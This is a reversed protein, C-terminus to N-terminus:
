DEGLLQSYFSDPELFGDDDDQVETAYSAYTPEVNSISSHLASSTLLSPANSSLPIGAIEHQDDQSQLATAEVDSIRGIITALPNSRNSPPALANWPDLSVSTAAAATKNYTEEEPQTSRQADNMIGDLFSMVNFNSGTGFLGEVDDHTEDAGEGVDSESRDLLPPALLPPPPLLETSSSSQVFPNRPSSQEIDDDLRPSILSILPPLPISEHHLQITPSRNAETESLLRPTKVPSLEAFSLQPSLLSPTSEGFQQTPSSPESSNHPETFGPPPLLGPGLGPPPRLMGKTPLPKPTASSDSRPSPHASSVPTSNPMSEESVSRKSFSANEPVKVAAKTKNADLTKQKGAGLGEDAKSVTKGRRSQGPQKVVIESSLNRKITPPVSAVGNKSKGNTSPKVSSNDAAPKSAQSLKAPKTKDASKQEVLKLAEMRCCAFINQLSIRTIQYVTFDLVYRNDREKKTQRVDSAMQRQRGKTGDGEALKKEGQVSPKVSVTNVAEETKAPNKHPIEKKRTLTTVTKSEVKHHDKPTASAQKVTKYGDELKVQTTETREVHDKVSVPPVSVPQDQPLPTHEAIVTTDNDPTGNGNVLTISPKVTESQTVSQARQKPQLPKKKSLAKRTRAMCHEASASPSVSRSVSIGRRAATRWAIGCPLLGSSADNSDHFKSESALLKQRRFVADSFTRAQQTSSPMRRAPASSVVGDGGPKDRTFSGDSLVCNTPLVNERRFRSLLVHKTQEKGLAVLDSSLPDARALCRCTQKWNSGQHDSSPPFEVSIFLDIALLTLLLIFLAAIYSIEVRHQPIYETGHGDKRRIRGFSLIDVVLSPIAFTFTKELAKTKPSVYPLCYDYPNMSYGVLLELKDSRFATHENHNIGRISYARGDIEFIISAYSARLVCDPRHEVYFTKNENPRLLFSKSPPIANSPQKPSYAIPLFLSKINSLWSLRPPNTEECGVIHFRLSSCKKSHQIPEGGYVLGWFGSPGFMSKPHPRRHSFHKIESSRMYVNSINVDVDGLNALVFSKVVPKGEFSASSGPFVLASRGHRFEIDGGNSSDDHDLFALKEWAGRGRIRVEEFGTMNNSIFLTSQFDGRKPPRFFVPGLKAKGFPPLIIEQAGSHGVSFSQPEIV